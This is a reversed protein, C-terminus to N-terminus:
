RALRVRIPGKAASADVVKGKQTVEVVGAAVLRRAAMRAREMLPRWDEAVARAAESPCISGAREREQLLSVINRELADDTKDSRQNRCRTSCYRVEDWCSSWKKRWEFM